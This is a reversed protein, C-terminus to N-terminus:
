AFASRTRYKLRPHLQSLHQAPAVISAVQYPNGRACRRRIQVPYDRWMGPLGADNIVCGGQFYRVGACDGPFGALVEKGGMDVWLGGIIFALAFAVAGMNIPMATAVIFMIVLGIITAIQPSM